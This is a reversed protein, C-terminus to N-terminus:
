NIILLDKLCKGIQFALEVPVANGIQKYKSSISGIFEYNDSFTQIRAYERVSLPREFLPHCRETQKQSPSCLLTLSPKDMSLRHLIGRKGGGSYYSKGLYEKQLKEDLNIWCGGQPIKKFLEIKKESYKIYESEPVNLLVDKLIKKQKIEKPFNFIKLNNKEVGVIFVRERKQPIGYHFANLCKTYIKYMSNEELKSIIKKFTEGKGHTLIGKVNEVIFIKPKLLFIKEIFDFILMGRKDDLGKRLGSQSFSQCPVGGVLVDINGIYKSYDIKVFNECIININPHNKELTKCCDKNNDVLLLPYFGSKVLGTSFGGSGACLEIFTKKCNM